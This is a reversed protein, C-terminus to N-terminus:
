YPIKIWDQKICSKKSRDMDGMIHDVETTILLTTNPHIYRHFIAFRYADKKTTAHHVLKWSTLDQPNRAFVQYPFMKEEGM